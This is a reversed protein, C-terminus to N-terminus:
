IAKEWEMRVRQLATRDKGAFRKLLQREVCKKVAFIQANSIQKGSEHGVKIGQLAKM